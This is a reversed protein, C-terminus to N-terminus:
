IDFYVFLLVQAVTENLTTQTQALSVALNTNATQTQLALNTNATQLQTLQNQILGVTMDLAGQSVFTTAGGGGATARPTDSSLTMRAGPISWILSGNTAEIQQAVVIFHRSDILLSCVVLLSFFNSLFSKDSHVLKTVGRSLARISEGSLDQLDISVSGLLAM